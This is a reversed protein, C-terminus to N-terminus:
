RWSEGSGTRNGGTLGSVPPLHKGEVEGLSQQEAEWEEETYRAFPIGRHQLLELFDRRTIGLLSAAYGSSVRGQTFLRVAADQKVQELFAEELFAEDFLTEPIDWEFRLKRSM